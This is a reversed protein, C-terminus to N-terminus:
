NASGLGRVFRLADANITKRPDEALLTVRGVSGFRFVGIRNWQGGNISQDVFVDAAGGEHEVVLHARQSRTKWITHWEFVEYEGPELPAEFLFTPAAGTSTIKAYRSGAGYPEPADSSSWDGTLKRGSTADDAIVEIAGQNMIEMPVPWISAYLYLREGHIVKGNISLKYSYM